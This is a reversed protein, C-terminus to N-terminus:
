LTSAQQNVRIMIKLLLLLSELSFAQAAQSSRFISFRRQGGEGAAELRTSIDDERREGFYHVLRERKRVVKM